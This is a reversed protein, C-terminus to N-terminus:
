RCEREKHGWLEERRLAGHDQPGIDVVRGGAEGARGEGGDDSGHVLKYTKFVLKAWFKDQYCSISEPSAQGCAAWAALVEEM